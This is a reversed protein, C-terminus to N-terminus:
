GKQRGEQTKRGKMLGKRSNEKRGDAGKQPTRGEM